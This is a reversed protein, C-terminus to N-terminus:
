SVSQKCRDATVRKFIDEYDKQMKEFTFQKDVMDRANRGCKKALQPDVVLRVIENSLAIADPERVLLGNVDHQIIHDHDVDAVVCAVNFSMAELLAVSIGEKNYGLTFCDFLLYYRYAPQGVIFIVKDAIGLFKAKEKLAHEMPGLGVILLRVHSFQKCVLAVADLILDYNKIPVFRGVTGIIFHEPSLLALDKREVREQVSKKQLSASDIGNAINHVQSPKFNANKVLFSQAVTASIAIIERAFPVTCRDIINRLKGDQELRNHLASVVPIGLLRGMVRGANNASWLQTHICDPDIKKIVNYLRAFFVPDYLCMAGTVHYVAIGHQKLCASHPGDHFYIVHHEFQAPDMHQVLDCLLSEAGGIKLSSTIHLLKIKKM